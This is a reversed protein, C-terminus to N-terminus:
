SRTCPATGAESERAAFAMEPSSARGSSCSSPSRAATPRRRSSGRRSRGGGRLRRLSRAARALSADHRCSGPTAARLAPLRAAAGMLRQHGRRGLRAGLPGALVDEAPLGTAAVLDAWFLAREALAARIAVAVEGEPAPDGPPRGSFRRTTASTSRRRPRAGRRGLGGRGLRLTRRAGGAPVLPRAEALRREGVADGAARAGAVPRAGGAAGAAARGRALRAPLPRVGAQEAPEVERRLVALTARRIRRLVEPDCWERESGGPRLEGRVLQDALELVGLDAEVTAVDLLFRDAIEGTTFPGHTRAYRRLVARLPDEVPSSSSTRSAARPFSASPTASSVRMRSRRAAARRREAERPDRAARAAADGRLRPRVRRRRAPRRAAPPRAARRRQAAVASAVRRGARDRRPRTAGAAGRHGDARAPPRPRALAGARPAGRAAHRGRVHVDGRLRLPAVVRVAVGVGDGGGGSRARADPDGAPDRAACPPRLRGPPVRSVDRSRDPVAPLPPRGPPPEAGEPAAALAAHASRSPTAPHAAGAGRERPVALRLAGVARARRAPAGRDRGARAPPRRGAAAHRCGPLAARHRRRVVAVARRADLADRLRARLAMSWPAHM